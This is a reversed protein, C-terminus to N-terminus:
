FDAITSIATSVQELGFETGAKDRDRQRQTYEEELADKDTLYQRAIALRQV